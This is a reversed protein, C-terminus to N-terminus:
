CHEAPSREALYHEAGCHQATSNKAMSPQAKSRVCVTDTRTNIRLNAPPTHLLGGLRGGKGSVMRRYAARSDPVGLVRRELKRRVVLVDPVSKDPCAVALRFRVGDCQVRQAPPRGAATVDVVFHPLRRPVREGLVFLLPFVMLSAM